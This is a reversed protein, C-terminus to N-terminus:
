AKPGPAASSGIIDGKAELDNMTVGAGIRDEGRIAGEHSVARAIKVAPDRAPPDNSVDAKLSMGPLKISFAGRQRFVLFAAILVVAFLAGAALSYDM